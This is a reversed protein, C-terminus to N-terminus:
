PPWPNAVGLTNVLFDRLAADTRNGLWRFFPPLRTAYSSHVRPRPNVGHAIRHRSALTDDLKKRARAVTHRRWSWSATIDPLGISDAILTKVNNVNPTHFRQVSKGALANLGLWSGQPGGAPPRMAAIAEVIVQEVYAEWASVCIVVVAHNLSGLGWQRGPRGTRLQKHADLLEDAEELLVLLHQTFANSAM